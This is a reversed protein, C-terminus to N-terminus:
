PVVKVCLDLRPYVNRTCSYVVVTEPPILMLKNTILAGTSQEPHAMRHIPPAM